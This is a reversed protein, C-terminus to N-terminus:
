FVVLFIYFLCLTDVIWVMSDMHQLSGFDILVWGFLISCVLAKIQDISQAIKGIQKDDDEGRRTPLTQSLVIMKIMWLPSFLDNETVM